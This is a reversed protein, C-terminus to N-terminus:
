LSLMGVVVLEVDAVVVCVVGFLVILVNRVVVAVVSDKAAHEACKTAEVTVALVRRVYATIAM